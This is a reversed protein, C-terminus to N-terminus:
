SRTATGGLTRWKLGAGVQTGVLDIFEGPLDFTIRTLIGDLTGDPDILITDPGAGAAAMTLRLHQNVFTPIALTRTEGVAGSAMLCFGSATVPIAKDINGPDTIPSIPLFTELNLIAAEVDSRMDDESRGM